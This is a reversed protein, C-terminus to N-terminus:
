RESRELSRQTLRQYIALTEEAAKRWSFRMARKLGKAVLQRRLEADSLLRWM